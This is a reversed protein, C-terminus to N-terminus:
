PFYLVNMGDFLRNGLRWNKEMLAFGIRFTQIKQMNKQNAVYQVDPLFNYLGTYDETHM